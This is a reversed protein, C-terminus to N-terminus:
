REVFVFMVDVGNPEMGIFHVDKLEWKDKPYAKCLEALAEDAQRIAGQAVPGIRRTVIQIWPQKQPM